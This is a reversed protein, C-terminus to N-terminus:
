RSVNNLITTKFKRFIVLSACYNPNDIEFSPEMLQLTEIISIQDFNMISSFDKQMNSVNFFQKYAIKIEKLRNKGVNCHLTKAVLIDKSVQSICSSM